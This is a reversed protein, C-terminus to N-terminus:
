KRPVEPPPEVNVGLEKLKAKAFENAPNAKVSLRFYRIAQETDGRASYARALADFQNWPPPYQKPDHLLVTAAEDLRGKRLLGAVIMSVTFPPTTRDYGVRRAGERFHRHVAELGGKEYLEM